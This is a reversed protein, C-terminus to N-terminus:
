LKVSVAVHDVPVPPCVARDVNVINNDKDRTIFEIIENGVDDKTITRTTFRSVYEGNKWGFNVCYGNDYSISIEPFPLVRGASFCTIHKYIERTVKAKVEDKRDYEGDTVIKRDYSLILYNKGEVEITDGINIDAGHPNVFMNFTLFSVGPEESIEELSLPYIEM